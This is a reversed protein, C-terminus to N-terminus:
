LFGEQIAKKIRSADVDQYVEVEKWGTGSVVMNEYEELVQDEPKYVIKKEYYTHGIKSGWKLIYEKKGPEQDMLNLLVKLRKEVTFHAVLGLDKEAQGGSCSCLLFSFFLFYRLMFNKKKMGKVCQFFITAQIERHWAM